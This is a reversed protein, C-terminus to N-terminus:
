FRWERELTQRMKEASERYREVSGGYPDPVNMITIRSAADPVAQCVIDAHLETMVFIRDAQRIREDTVLTSLHHSLDLGMEAMVQKAEASAPSNGSAAIGASLVNVYKRELEEVSVHYKEALIKRAMVEAMPSRCTNGTCLFLYLPRTLGALVKKSIAGERLVTYEGSDAPFKVVTSAKGLVCEGADFILDVQTGIAQSVARGSTTDVEGSINASSLAVPFDVSELVRQTFSHQPVRIGLYGESVIFPRVDAPLREAESDRGEVRLVLTLPGPFCRRSLREAVVPMQPVFRAVRVSDSFALTFPSKASRKKARLLGSLAERSDARVAIGYVTETPLVVRRGETLFEVARRVLSADVSKEELVVVEAM